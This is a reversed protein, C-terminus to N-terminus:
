RVLKPHGGPGIRYSTCKKKQKLKKRPQRRADEEGSRGRRRHRCKDASGASRVREQRAALYIL